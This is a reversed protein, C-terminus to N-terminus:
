HSFHSIWIASKLAIIGTAGISLLAITLTFTCFRMIVELHSAAGMADLACVEARDPIHCCRRAARLETNRVITTM